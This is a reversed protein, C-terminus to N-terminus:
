NKSHIHQFHVEEYIWKLSKGTKNLLVGHRRLLNMQQNKKILISKLM